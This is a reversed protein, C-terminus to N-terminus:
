LKGYRTNEFTITVNGPTPNNAGLTVADIGLGGDITSGATAFFNSSLYAVDNGAGMTASFLGTFRSNTIQLIDNGAGTDIAGIGGILVQDLKVSDANLTKQMPSPNHMAHASSDVKM